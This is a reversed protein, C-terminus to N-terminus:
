LQFRKAYLMIIAAACRCPWQVADYLYVLQQIGLVSLVVSFSLSSLKQKM